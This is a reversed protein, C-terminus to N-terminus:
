FFSRMKQAFCAVSEGLLEIFIGVMGLHVMITSISMKNWGPLSTLVYGFPLPIMILLFLVCYVVSSFNVKRNEKLFYTLPILFYTANYIWSFTPIWTLFLTLAYIRKWKEKSVLLILVIGVCVIGMLVSSPVNIHLYDEAIQCFNTLNIKYGYGFGRSDVYTEKSLSLINAIMHPIQEIGGRFFFPFIFITVGYCASKLAKKYQRQLLLEVGYVVPYLKLCAACALSILSLEQMVKKESYENYLFFMVFLVSLIVVNGREIMYLYGPSFLFFISLVFARKGRMEMFANVMSFICVTIIFFFLVAVTVGERTLSVESWGTYDYPIFRSIIYLLLYAFAPYIASVDYPCPHAADKLSEFLDPFIGITEGNWLLCKIPEGNYVLIYLFSLLIFCGSVTIYIDCVCRKDFFNHIAGKLEIREMRKVRWVKGPKDHCAM